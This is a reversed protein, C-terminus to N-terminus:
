DNASAVRNEAIGAPNMVIEVQTMVIEVQITVIRAAEAVENRRRRPPLAMSSTQMITRTPDIQSHVITKTTKQVCRIGTAGDVGAVEAVDAVGQAVRLVIRTQTMTILGITTQGITPIAKPTQNQTPAGMLIGASIPSIMSRIAKLSSKRKKETEAAVGEVGDDRAVAVRPVHITMQTLSSQLRNKLGMTQRSLRMPNTERVDAVDELAGVAHAVSLGLTPINKATAM